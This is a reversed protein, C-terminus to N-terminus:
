ALAALEVIETTLLLLSSPRSPWYCLKYLLLLMYHEASVGIQRAAQTQGEWIARVAGREALRLCSDVVATAEDPSM